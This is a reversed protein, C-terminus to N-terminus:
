SRGEALAEALKQEYESQTMPRTATAMYRHVYAISAPRFTMGERLQECVHLLMADTKLHDPILGFFRTANVVAELKPDRM